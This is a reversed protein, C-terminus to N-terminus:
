QIKEMNAASKFSSTKMKQSHQQEEILKKTKYKSQARIKQQERRDLIQREKIGRPIILDKYNATEQASAALLISDNMTMPNTNQQAAMMRMTPANARRNMTQPGLSNHPIHLDNGPGSAIQKRDMNPFTKSDEESSNKNRM